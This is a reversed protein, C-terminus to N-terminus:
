FVQTYTLISSCLCAPQDQHVSGVNCTKILLFFVKICTSCCKTLVSNSPGQPLLSTFFNTLWCKRWIGCHKRCNVPITTMQTANVEEMQVYLYLMCTHVSFPEEREWNAVFNGFVLNWRLYFESYLCLTHFIFTIQQLSQYMPVSFIISFSSTVTQLDRHLTATETTKKKNTYHSYNAQSVGHPNIPTYSYVVATGRDVCKGNWRASCVHCCAHWLLCCFPCWKTNQEM